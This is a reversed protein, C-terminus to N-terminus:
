LTRAAGDQRRLPSLLQLLGCPLPPIAFSPDAPPRGRKKDDSRATAITALPNKPELWVYSQSGTPTHSCWGHALNKAILRTPMVRRRAPANHLDRRRPHSVRRRAGVRRRGRASRWSRHSPVARHVGGVPYASTPGLLGIANGDDPRCWTRVSRLPRAAPSAVACEVIGPQSRLRPARPPSGASREISCSPTTSLSRLRCIRQM